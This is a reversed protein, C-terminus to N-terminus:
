GNIAGSTLGRVIGRQGILALAIIPLTVVETAAALGSWGGGSLVVPVTETEPRLTFTVAFLFENWVPIFVLLTAALLGPAALPIVIRRLAQVPTCGDVEAQEVLHTPIARFLNTLVWVAFPLALALDSVILAPYTDIWHLQLMVLYLSPVLAIPPFTAMIVIGVLLSRKRPLPLHALAYAACSGIVLALATTTTAVIVSNLVNRRFGGNAVVAAFNGWYLHAPFWTVPLTDAEAPSKLATITLWYFPFLFFLLLLLNLAWLAAVRPM